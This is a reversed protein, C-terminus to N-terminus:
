PGHGVRSGVDYEVEHNKQVLWFMGVFCMPFVVGLDCFFHAFMKGFM